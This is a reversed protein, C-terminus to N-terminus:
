PLYPIVLSIQRHVNDDDADDDAVAAADANDNSAVGYDADCNVWWQM